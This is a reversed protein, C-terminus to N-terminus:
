ATLLSKADEESKVEKKPEAVEFSFGGITPLEPEAVRITSPDITLLSGNETTVKIVRAVIDVQDGLLLYTRSTTPINFSIGTKNLFAQYQKDAEVYDGAREAAIAAAALAHNLPNKMAISSVAQLNFICTQFVTGPEVVSQILEGAKNKVDVVTGNGRITFAVKKGVYSEDIRARKNMVGEAMKRNMLQAM